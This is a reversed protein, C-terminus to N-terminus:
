AASIPGGNTGHKPTVDLTECLNSKKLGIESKHECCNLKGLELILDCEFQNFRQIFNTYKTKVKGMAFEFLLISNWFNRKACSNEVERQKRTVSYFVTPEGVFQECISFKNWKLLKKRRILCLKCIFLKMLLRVEFIIIWIPAVNVGLVLKINAM